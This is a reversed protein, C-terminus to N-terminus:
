KQAQFDIGKVAKVKEFNKCLGEVKIVTEM